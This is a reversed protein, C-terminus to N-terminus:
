SRRNYLEGNAGNDARRNPPVIPPTLYEARHNVSVGFTDLIGGETEIRDKRTGM